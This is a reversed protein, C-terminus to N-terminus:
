AKWPNLLKLSLRAFDSTNRTVLTLGHVQATAALLGDIVPVPRGRRMAGGSLRGWARMVPEDLTLIRGRFQVLVEEELWSPLKAAQVEDASHAAGQEIEGVTVVSLFCDDLLQARIWAVVKADPTKRRPESILNTDLLWTL